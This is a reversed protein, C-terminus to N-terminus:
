LLGERRLYNAFKGEAKNKIYDMTEENKYIKKDEEKILSISKLGKYCFYYYDFLTKQLSAILFDDKFFYDTFYEKKIKSYSYIKKGTKFENTKKCTISTIQYPFQAIVNYFNLASELSIYSPSYLFNAIKFESPEKKALNFLYRNRALSFIIKEKKLRKLLHKITNDSKINFLNKIQALTFLNIQKSQLTKIFLTKSIEKSMEM